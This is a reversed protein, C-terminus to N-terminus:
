KNTGCPCGAGCNCAMLFDPDDEGEADEDCLGDDPLNDDIDIDMGVDLSCCGVGPPRTDAGTKVETDRSGCCGGAGDLPKLPQGLIPPLPQLVTNESNNTLPPLLRPFQSAIGHDVEVLRGLAKWEETPINEFNGSALDGLNLTSLSPLRISSSRRARTIRENGGGSDRAGNELEVEVASAVAGLPALEEGETWFFRRLGDADAGVLDPLVMGEAMEPIPEIGQGGCGLRGKGNRDKKMGLPDHVKCGVCACADGCWCLTSGPAPTPPLSDNSLSFSVTSTPSDLEPLKLPAPAPSTPAPTPSPEASKKCCCGASVAPANTAPPAPTVSASISSSRIKDKEARKMARKAAILKRKQAPTMKGLIASRTGCDCLGSTACSCPNLLSTISVKTTARQPIATNATGSTPPSSQNAASLSTATTPPFLGLKEFPNDEGEVSADSIGNKLVILDREVERVANECVCKAHIGKGKRAQRCDVCQSIPRGKKRIEYLTRELHQCNSSRHGSICSQCSFKLNNILVM